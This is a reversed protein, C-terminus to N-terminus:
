RHVAENLLNITVQLYEKRDKPTTCAEAAEIIIYSLVSGILAVSLESIDGYEAQMAKILVNRLRYCEAHWKERDNM